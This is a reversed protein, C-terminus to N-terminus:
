DEEPLMLTIVPEGYDGPGIVMKIAADHVLQSEQKLVEMQTKNDFFVYNRLEIRDLKLDYIIEVEDPNRRVACVAMWLVDWLRGPVDQVGQYSTPINEIMGWVAATVAVPIKFGAERATKSVDILAGDELADDRTYAFIIEGFELDNKHESMNKQPYAM